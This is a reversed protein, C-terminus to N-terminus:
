GPSRFLYTIIMGEVQDKRLDERSLLDERVERIVKEKIEEKDMPRMLREGFNRWATPLIEM